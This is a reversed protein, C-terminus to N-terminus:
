ERPEFGIRKRPPDPLNMLGRIAAFLSQIDSGHTEVRGELEALKDALGKNLGALERMRVFARMVAVNVRVARRSTLVGSLMAVGQETFVTPLYRRGGRGRNSTGFHCRLARVEVATLRFAFDPPFRGANRRVARNLAKTEVRYLSALDADLM